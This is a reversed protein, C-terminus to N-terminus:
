ILIHETSYIKLFMLAWFMFKSEFGYPVDNSVGIHQWLKGSM